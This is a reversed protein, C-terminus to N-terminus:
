NQSILQSYLGQKDLLEHHTGREVIEGLKMVIIEDCDRITSLRHAVIMCTCGRRRINDMVIKESKPDLASTGEDMILYSPNLALARAIEIRQKQGGSFNSGKENVESEYAGSRAAVVDHIMADKAAQIISHESMTKDWFSLNDRITGKFLTIEQDIVAISNNIMHRPIDERKMQDLLIEGEWPKYLGAVLRAVTSKGSGSGGVLAVRSGPELRISFNKILAPLTHTYGFSVNKLELHGNLKSHVLEARGNAQVMKENLSREVKINQVPKSFEDSVEYNLVDDIRSMDGDTQQLLSGMRVL